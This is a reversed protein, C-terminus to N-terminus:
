FDFTFRDIELLIMQNIIGRAVQTMQQTEKV